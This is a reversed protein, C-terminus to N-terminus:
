ASPAVLKAHAGDCFPAKGTQKCSCLAVKKSKEITFAQPTFGTGKHAGNCFPQNESQGCSCWYYTVPELTMVTPQTGAIKADNM